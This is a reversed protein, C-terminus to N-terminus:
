SPGTARPRARSSASRPRSPALGAELQRLVWRTITQGEAEAASRIEEKELKSVRIKIFDDKYQNIVRGVRVGIKEPDKLRGKAVMRQVMELAATEAPPLGPLSAQVQDAIMVLM